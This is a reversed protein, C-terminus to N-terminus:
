KRPQYLPLLLVIRYPVPLHLMSLTSSTNVYSLGGFLLWFTYERIFKNM